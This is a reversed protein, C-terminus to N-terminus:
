LNPYFLKFILQKSKHLDLVKIAREPTPRDRQKKCRMIKRALLYSSTKHRDSIGFRKVDQRKIM